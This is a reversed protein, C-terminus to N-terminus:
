WFIKQWSCTLVLSLLLLENQGVSERHFRCTELQVASCTWTEHWCRSAYRVDSVCLRSQHGDEDYISM